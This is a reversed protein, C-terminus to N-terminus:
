APAGNAHMALARWATAHIPTPIGAAAGLRMVAGSLYPLELRRGALLDELMSPKGDRPMDAVQRLTEAAIDAPLAIGRARGVSAAEEAADLVLARAEANALVEGITARALCAVASFSTLMVFKLWVDAEVDASLVADVGVCGNLAAGLAEARRRSRTDVAGFRIRCFTSKCAVIGPAALSSKISVMGALVAEAGLAAALVDRAEVGNQLPLVATEPGVLPKLQAALDALDYLKVTAIVADAPGLAAAEDSARQPGLSVVGDPAQLEIGVDRLAALNRGRVFYAVAHGAQALRVGLYGGVGGAGAIVINM